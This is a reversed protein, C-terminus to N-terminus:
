AAAKISYVYEFSQMGEFWGSIKPTKLKGCCPCAISTQKVFGWFKMVKIHRRIALFYRRSDKPFEMKVNVEQLLQFLFRPEKDMLVERIGQALRVSEESQTERRTMDGLGKRCHSSGGNDSSGGRRGM